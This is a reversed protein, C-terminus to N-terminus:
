GTIVVFDSIKKIIKKRFISFVMYRGVLECAEAGGYTGMTFVFWERKWEHTVKM